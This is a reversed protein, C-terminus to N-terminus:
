YSTHSLYSDLLLRLSNAQIGLFNPNRHLAISVTHCCTQPPTVLLQSKPITYRFHWIFKMSSIDLSRNPIHNQFEPFLNLKSNYQHFIQNGLISLDTLTSSYALLSLTYCSFFHPELDSCQPYQFKLPHYNPFFSFISQFSALSPIFGSTLLIRFTNNNNSHRIRTKKEEKKKTWM